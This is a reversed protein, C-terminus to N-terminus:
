VCSLAIILPPQTVFTVDCYLSLGRVKPLIRRRHVRHSRGAATSVIFLFTFPTEGNPFPSHPLIASFSPSSPV